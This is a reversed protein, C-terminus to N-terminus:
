KSYKELDNQVSEYLYTPYNMEKLIFTGGNVYSIGDVIKYSYEIKEECEKVNMKKNCICKTDKFHECLEIYHTTIMYDVKKKYLNLGNLYLKACSVADKPNTGSYIEDFICLHRKEPQDTISDLIDKCRRAEAQFLSDRGSTDPINLYSHFTDYCRISAKEYCGYGFQQSMIVNLFVSKLITTKGSANPGSVILNNELDVDNRIMADQIHNLYYLGKMSTKKKFKCPSLRHDKVHKQLSLIDQNYEHIFFTYSIADHHESNMFFQYYLNMMGGIQGIKQVISDCEKIENIKELMTVINSKQRYTEELFGSYKSYANINQAVRDLLQISQKLHMKYDMLFTYIKTINRYFSCCSIVNNYVQLLYIFLSFLASIRNQFSVSTFNFFLQYVSTNKFLNKLHGIYSSISIPINQLKLLMFPLLLMVLPSLLSFIPSTLNYISLCHLFSSSSNLNALLKFGIFQYKDIFNTEQIFEQYSTKFLSCDYPQSTYRKICKQSQKLFSTDTTYLSCWKSMLTSNETFFHRYLPAKSGLELDERIVMSLSAHEVYEIPLKYDLEHRSPEGRLYMDDIQEQIKDM